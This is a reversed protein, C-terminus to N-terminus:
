ASTKPSSELVGATDLCQVPEMLLVSLFYKEFELSGWGKGRVSELQEEWWLGRM